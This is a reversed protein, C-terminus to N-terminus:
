EKPNYRKRNNKFQRRGVDGHAYAIMELKKSEGTMVREYAILLNEATKVSELIVNPMMSFSEPTGVCLQFGYRNKIIKGNSHFFHIDEDTLKEIEVWNAGYVVCGNEQYDVPVRLLLEKSCDGLFDNEVGCVADILGINAAVVRIEAESPTITPLISLYCFPYQARMERFDSRVNYYYKDWDVKDKKLRM